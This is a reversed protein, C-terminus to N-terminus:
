WIDKFFRTIICGPLVMHRIVLGNIRMGFVYVTLLFKRFKFFVILFGSNDSARIVASFSPRCIFMSIFFLKDTNSSPPRALIISICSFSIFSTSRLEVILDKDKIFPQIIFKRFLIGLVEIFQKFLAASIIGGDKHPLIGHIFPMAPQAASCLRIGDHVSNDM